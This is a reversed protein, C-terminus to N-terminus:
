TALLPPLNGIGAIGGERQRTKADALEGSTLGPHVDM